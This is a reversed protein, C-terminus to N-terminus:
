SGKDTGADAGEEASKTDRVTHLNHDREKARDGNPLMRERVYIPVGFREEAEEIDIEKILDPALWLEELRYRFTRFGSDCRITRGALSVKALITRLDIYMPDSPPDNLVYYGCGAALGTCSWAPVEHKHGQSCIAPESYRGVVYGGANGLLVLPRTSVAQAVRWGTLGTVTRPEGEPPLDQKDPALQQFARQAALLQQHSLTAPVSPGFGPPVPAWLAFGSSFQPARPSPAPGVTLTGLSTPTPTTVGTKQGTQKHGKWLGYWIPVWLCLAVGYLTFSVWPPLVGGITNGLGAGWLSFYIVLLLRTVKM